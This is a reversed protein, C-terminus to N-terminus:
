IEAVNPYTVCCVARRVLVSFCSFVFKSSRLCLPSSFFLHLTQAYKRTWKKKNTTHTSTKSGLAIVTLSASYVTCGRLGSFCCFMSKQNKQAMFKASARLENSTIQIEEQQQTRKKSARSSPIPESPFVARTFRERPYRKRHDSEDWLHIENLITHHNICAYSISHLSFLRFKLCFKNIFLLDLKSKRPLCRNHLMKHINSLM